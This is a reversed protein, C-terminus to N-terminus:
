VGGAAVGFVVSGVDVPQGRVSRGEPDTHTMGALARVLKGRQRASLTADAAERIMMYRFLGIQRARELRATQEDDQKSM